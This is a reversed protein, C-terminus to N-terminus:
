SDKSREAVARFFQEAVAEYRERDQYFGMAHGANEILTLSKQESACAEYMRVTMEYPVFRDETSHFFAVPRTWNQLGSFANGDKLDFCGYLKGGLWAFGFALNRWAKVRRIIAFIMARASGFGSDLFLGQVSDPLGQSAAMAATAAGMSIGMLVIRVSPSFRQEAYKIWRLCDRQELVGLSVVNGESTGHARQDIMLVNYGHRRCLCVGGSGDRVANSRYGHLLIALPANDPFMRYLRGGLTLGDHSRISVSEYPLREIEDILAHMEDHFPEYQEGHPLMHPTPLKERYTRFGVKYITYAAGFPISLMMLSFVLAVWRM